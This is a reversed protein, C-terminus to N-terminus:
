DSPSQSEGGAASTDRASDESDLVTQGDEEATQEFFFSRGTILGLTVFSLAKLLGRLFARGRM